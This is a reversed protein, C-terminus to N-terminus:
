QVMVFINIGFDKEEQKPKPQEKSPEKFINETLTKSENDPLGCSMFYSYVKQMAELTAQQYGQKFNCM